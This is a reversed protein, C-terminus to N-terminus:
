ENAISCSGCRLGIKGVGASLVVIISAGRPGRRDALSSM